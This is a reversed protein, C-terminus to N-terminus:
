PISIRRICTYENRRSQDDHISRYGRPIVIDQWSAVTRLESLYISSYELLEAEGDEDRQCDALDDSVEKRFLAVLDELLVWDDLAYATETHQHNNPGSVVM